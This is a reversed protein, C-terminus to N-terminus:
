FVLELKHQRNAEERHDFGQVVETFYLAGGTPSLLREM